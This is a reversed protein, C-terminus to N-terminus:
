NELIIIGNAEIWREIRAEEKDADDSLCDFKEYFKASAEKFTLEM